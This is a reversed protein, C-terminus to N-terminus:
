TLIYFGETQLSQFLHKKAKSYKLNYKVEYNEVILWDFKLKKLLIREKKEWELGERHNM